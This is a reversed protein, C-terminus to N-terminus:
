NLNLTVSHLVGNVSSRIKGELFFGVLCAHKGLWGLFSLLPAALSHRYVKQLHSTEM